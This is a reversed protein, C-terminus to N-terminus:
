TYMCSPVASKGVIEPKTDWDEMQNQSLFLESFGRQNDEELYPPWM